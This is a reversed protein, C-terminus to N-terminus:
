IPLQNHPGCERFNRSRSQLERGSIGATSDIWRRNLDPESISLWSDGPETGPRVNKNTPFRTEPASHFRFLSNSRNSRYKRPDGLNRTITM